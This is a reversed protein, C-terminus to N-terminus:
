PNLSAFHSAAALLDDRAGQLRQILAAQADTRGANPSGAERWASDAEHWRRAADELWSTDRM